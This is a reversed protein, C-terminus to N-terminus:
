ADVERSVELAFQEEVPRRGHRDLRYLALEGYGKASPVTGIYETVLDPPQELELIAAFPESLYVTGPLAVPEIRAAMTVQAGICSPRDMVSDILPIVPGYHAGIRLSLDEPLGCAGLDVSQVAAQLELACRAARVPDALALYIADGWTEICEISDSHREIVDALRAYFHERYLMIQRDGLRSYGLVDVFLLARQVRMGARPPGGPRADGGPDIQHTPHGLSRWIRVDDATGGGGPDGPDGGDYIALQRLPAQLQRARLLALGMAYRSCYSYLMGDELFQDRTAFSVHRARERCAWYRDVWQEGSPRVSTQLFEEESFPLVVHLEGGAELIKEAVLIDAGAALSGFGFRINHEEVTQRIEAAVRPEQDRPFRGSATRTSAIHGTFHAVTPPLLPDLLDEELGRLRVVRRLQRLTTARASLNGDTCDAARELAKRAGEVDDLHLRAEAESAHRFYDATEATSGLEDLVSRARERAREEEGALLWLTAANIGPYYGGWRGHIDAYAHAAKAARARLEEADGAALATDKILRAELAAFEPDTQGALGWEQLLRAAESSAGARALALLCRHQLGPHDPHSRLARRALDYAAMFDGAHERDRVGELWAEPQEAVGDGM